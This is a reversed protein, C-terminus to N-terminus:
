DIMGLKEALETETYVKGTERDRILREEEDGVKYHESGAKPYPEVKFKLEKRAHKKFSKSGVFKIYRYKKSSIIKYRYYKGKEWHGGHKGYGNWAYSGRKTMGCYIFNTAQYIAGTHHMGSDAFSIIYWNGAQKLQRLTWGVFKSTINPINQSVYDKIYLRSLELTNDKTANDSITHALSVRPRTYTVMGALDDGCYLAYNYSTVVKRHLYHYKTMLGTLESSDVQKFTIKGKNMKNLSCQDLNAKNMKVRRIGPQKTLFKKPANGACNPCGKGKLLNIPLPTWEGDSGYGCVLCKAKTKKFLGHLSELLVIDDSPRVKHLREKFEEESIRHKKARHKKSCYKCGAGERFINDPILTDSTNCVLHKYKIPKKMGDYPPYFIYDDGLIQHAKENFEEFTMKRM